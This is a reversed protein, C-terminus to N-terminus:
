CLGERNSRSSSSGCMARCAQVAVEEGVIGLLVAFVVLGVKLADNNIRKHPRHWTQMSSVLYLLNLVLAGMVSDDMVTANPVDLLVAYVRFLARSFTISSPSVAWYIIAGCGINALGILLLVTGRIRWDAYDISDLWRHIRLAYREWAVLLSPLM